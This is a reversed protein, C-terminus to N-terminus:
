FGVPVIALAVAPPVFYSNRRLGGSVEARARAPVGDPRLVGGGDAGRRLKLARALTAIRAARRNGKEARRSGQRDLGRVGAYRGGRAMARRPYSHRGSAHH